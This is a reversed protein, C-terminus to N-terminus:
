KHWSRFVSQEGLYMYMGITTSPIIHFFFPANHMGKLISSQVLEKSDVRLCELVSQLFAHNILKRM